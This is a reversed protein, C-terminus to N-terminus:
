VGTGKCEWIIKLIIVDILFIVLIKVPVANDDIQPSNVNRANLRRMMPAACSEMETLERLEGPLMKYSDACM